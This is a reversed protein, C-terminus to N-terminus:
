GTSAALEVHRDKRYFSAVVGHLDGGLAHFVCSVAAAVHDDDICGAAQMDVFLQHLFEDADAGLDLGMINQEHEAIVYSATLTALTCLTVEAANNGCLEIAIGTAAAASDILATVPLGIL